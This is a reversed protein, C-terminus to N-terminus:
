QKLYGCERLVDSFMPDQFYPSKFSAIRCKADFKIAAQPQVYMRRVTQNPNNADPTSVVWYGVIDVFSQVQTSLQGTMWPNYHFRQLEDKSYRRGCIFIIHCPLNRFSRALQQITTNNKRIEDWGSKEVDGGLEFGKDETIGMIHNMNQAEIESLSDVIVTYYKRVRDYDFDPHMELAEERTIDKKGYFAMNQLSRLMAEDNADRAKVHYQLWEYVKQMQQIRMVRLM